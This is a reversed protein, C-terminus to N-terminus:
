RVHAADFAQWVANEIVHSDRIVGLPLPVVVADDGFLDARAEYLGLLTRRQAEDLLHVPLRIAAEGATEMWGVLDLLGARAEVGAPCTPDAAMHALFNLAGVFLDVPGDHPALQGLGRNGPHCSALVAMPLCQRHAAALVVMPAGAVSFTLGNSGFGRRCLDELELAAAADGHEYRAELDAVELRLRELLTGREIGHDLLQEFYSMLARDPRGGLSAVELVARRAYDVALCAEETDVLVTCVAEVAMDALWATGEVTTLVGRHVNAVGEDLRRAWADLEHSM